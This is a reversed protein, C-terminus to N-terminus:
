RERSHRFESPTVGVHKKFASYFASNSNFGVDFALELIPGQSGTDSLIAKAHEIRHRNLYDFFRMGFGANIVQSLHNVSCGVKEALRPLTLGPDLFVQQERMLREITAKHFLLQSDTLGSRAYKGRGRRLKVAGPAAPMDPPADYYDIILAASHEELTVFEAGQYTAQDMSSGSRRTPIMRYQFAVTRGDSLVDGILEYRHHFCSFFRDLDDILDQQSRQVNEPVDRYVGDDTLHEAVGHPDHHNWADFYSEVYSEVFGTARM